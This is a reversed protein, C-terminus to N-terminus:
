VHDHYNGTTSIPIVLAINVNMGTKSLLLYLEVLMDITRHVKRGRPFRFCTHM